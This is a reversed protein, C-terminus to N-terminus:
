PAAARGRIFHAIFAILAVVILLHIAFATVKFFVFGFVWAVLLFIGLALFM